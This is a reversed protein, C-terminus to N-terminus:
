SELWTKATQTRGVNHATWLWLSDASSLASIYTLWRALGWLFCFEKQDQDTARLLFTQQFGSLAVSPFPVAICHSKKLICKLSSCDSAIWDQNLNRTSTTEEINSAYKEEHGVPINRLTGMYSHYILGLHRMSSWAWSFFVLLGISLSSLAVYTKWSNRYFAMSALM